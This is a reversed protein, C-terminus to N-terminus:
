SFGRQWVPVLLSFLMHSRPLSHRYYDGRLRWGCPADRSRKVSGVMWAALGVQERCGLVQAAPHVTSQPPVPCVYPYTHPSWYLCQGLHSQHRWSLHSPFSFLPNSIYKSSLVTLTRDLNSIPDLLTCSHQSHGVKRPSIFTEQPSFTPWMPFFLAPSSGDASFLHLSELLLFSSTFTSMRLPRPFWM